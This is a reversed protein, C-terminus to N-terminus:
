RWVLENVQYREIWLETETTGKWGFIMGVRFSRAAPPIEGVGNKGFTHTFTEPAAPLVKGMVSWYFYTGVGLWGEPFADNDYGYSANNVPNGTRDFFEIFFYNIRDGRVQRARISVDYRTERSIPIKEGLVFREQAKDNDVLRLIRGLVEEDRPGPPGGLDKRKLEKAEALAAGSVKWKADSAGVSKFEPDEILPRPHEIDITVRDPGCINRADIDLRYIGHPPDEDVGQPNVYEVPVAGNASPKSPVKFRGGSRTQLRGNIQSTLGIPGLDESIQPNAVKLQLSLPAETDKATFSQWPYVLTDGPLSVGKNFWDPTKLVKVDRILRKFRAETRKLPRLRDAQDLQLSGQALLRAVETEADRQEICHAPLSVGQESVAALIDKRKQAAVTSLRHKHWGRAADLTNPQGPDLALLEEEMHREVFQYMNVIEQSLEGRLQAFDDPNLIRGEPGPVLTVSSRVWGNQSDEDYDWVAGNDQVYKHENTLRPDDTPPDVGYQMLPVHDLGAEVEISYTHLLYGEHEWGTNTKVVISGNATVARDGLSGVSPPMTRGDLVQQADSIREQIVHAANAIRVTHNAAIAIVDDVEVPLNLTLRKKVGPRWLNVQPFASGAKQTFTSVANLAGLHSQFGNISAVAGQTDYPLPQRAYDSVLVETLEELIEPSHVNNGIDVFPSSNSRRRNIKYSYWLGGIRVFIGDSMRGSLADETSTLTGELTTDGWRGSPNYRALRSAYSEGSKDAAFDKFRLLFGPRFSKSEEASGRIFLADEAEQSDVEYSLANRTM